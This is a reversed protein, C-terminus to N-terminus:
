CGGPGAPLTVPEAAAAAAQAATADGESVMGALVDQRRDRAADPHQLPDYASPAQPLGALLAAEGLDLSALPLHFDACAAAAMGYRGAGTPVLSLYDALIEAKPYRLSLKVGLTLEAAKALGGDSGGLYVEKALQGAITSGGQCACLHTADYAASRGLAALDVGPNSYFTEDETDVVARALLPPISGPALVVVGDSAALAAVRAGLDDAPPTAAWACGAGLVAAAALGAAARLLLWRAGTRTRCSAGARGRGVASAPRSAGLRDHVRHM